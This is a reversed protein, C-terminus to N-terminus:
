MVRPGREDRIICIRNCLISPPGHILKSHTVSIISIARAGFRAPWLPGPNRRLDYKPSELVGLGPNAMYITKAWCWRHRGLLPRCQWSHCVDDLASPVQRSVVDVFLHNVLGVYIRCTIAVFALRDLPTGFCQRSQSYVFAEPLELVPRPEKVWGIM